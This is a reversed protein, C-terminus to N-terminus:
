PKQAGKRCTLCPGFYDRSCGSGLCEKCLSRYSVCWDCVCDPWPKVTGGDAHLNAIIEVARNDRDRLREIELKQAAVEAQLRAILDARRDLESAIIEHSGYFHTGKRLLALAEAFEPAAGKAVEQSPATTQKAGYKAELDVVKQAMELLRQTQSDRARALESEAFAMAAKVADEALTPGRFGREGMFAVWRDRITEDSM